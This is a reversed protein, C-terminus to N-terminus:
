CCIKLFQAKGHIRIPVSQAPIFACDGKLLYIPDCGKCTLTACGSFCLLVEFSNEGTRYRAMDRVQETNLLVREVQFYENRILLEQAWGPRYNLTRMPQRPEASRKTIAVDLAKEVHLERPKGYKDLRNYDYLRYTLNSSEQIEAVVIGAGIGHVTGAPMYFVDGRRVKVHQLYKGMTGDSLARRLTEKSLDHHFGYILEADEKADLVYWMETKGLQGHEHARAYEDTPHVQVSLQENADILKVLIPLGGDDTLVPHGGVYDPRASIVEKLTMGKWPGETVVRSPGAEHTSCEWTEGLRINKFEEGFQGTLDKNFDDSLRSGGWPTERGAPEMLFPLNGLPTDPESTNRSILNTNRKTM